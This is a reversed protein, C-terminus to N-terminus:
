SGSGGDCGIVVESAGAASRRRKRQNEQHSRDPVSMNKAYYAGVRGCVAVLNIVPVKM